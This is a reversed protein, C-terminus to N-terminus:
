VSQAQHMTSNQNSQGRRMETSHRGVCVKLIIYNTKYTTIYICKCTYICIHIDIQIYVYVTYIMKHMM